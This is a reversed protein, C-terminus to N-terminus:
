HSCVRRYLAPLVLLTLVTSTLLGGIVVTALPRQVEAGLSSAAAMPLFGVSAVLATMLVPRLRDTAGQIVASQTPVGQAELQRIYTVLVVGNLVAIGFLAIFGIIASVSLPLGRLWLAIMGGSLALPVNLFILVAPRVSGFVVTLMALILSLTLPVVLALRRSAEELHEFQGGWQAHYGLPLPVKQALLRKAESVFSGLDRGRINCEVVLRRQVDQRSIQAPGSSQEIAAVRSLPVLEGHATPLLLASLQTPDESTKEDLRVVLDFRRPHQVVTGVLHGVRATEIVTLVDDATLGYRAIQLRDVVVRLVPLGAVQEVKVDAAGQVTELVRAIAEGTHRLVDLDPGFIKIALDSRSGGILENFRMEIPQTFGLSIGPVAEQIAQKMKEVLDERTRATTWQPRAKLRVFVDSLEVGMVDTAVDPSGTRTVAGLVEPFKLLTKEIQLSTTVSESLAASPLRWVNIAVDGEELRPVFEIGLSWGIGLSILFLAVAPAVVRIPRTMSWKLCPEYVQGLRRTFWTGESVTSRRALWYTLVPTLTVAVLMSGALALIVTLAMPRFLKGELGTLTLIPLYVVIIIGVAFVVPRLVEQTAAQVIALRENDTSPRKQALRRLINDVVVVSGDVLLGFDIAGLSMLNGSIRAQLMGSFAMLMSLPIASAVILGARLDGLFLFLVAMVLIAGEVLNNRVTTIVASVFVSRDYYPDIKVGSPLSESLEHVRRKVRDVVEDANAGALMQVMGIVTEGRGGMTAASLRLAPRPRVTALDRVFIPVGGPGHEVVITEVERENTTLAEARLLVQEREHEIYGGGMVANNRELAEFLRRLTVRYALLKAPDVMVQYQQLDGGWINVEVVGPIARLRMGIDWQLITRLAMLSHDKGTVTFQYVEGLGTTLPGMMPRGYSAPIREIAQTLRENVLQRALYVNVDDKFIATVASLGYRSVSRLEQLGPLGALSAEIPFTVFQEVDIPGLSPTRTLVQVQVPTLDPMADIPLAHLSWVGGVVILGLAVLTFFRYRLSLALLRTM